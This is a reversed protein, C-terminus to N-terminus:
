LYLFDYTFKNFELNLKQSLHHNFREYYGNKNEAKQLYLKNQIFFLRLLKVEKLFSITKDIYKKSPLGSKDRYPIITEQFVYKLIPRFIPNVIELVALSLIIIILINKHKM